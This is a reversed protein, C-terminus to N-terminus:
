LNRSPARDPGNSTKTPLVITPTDVAELRDDDVWMTKVEGDQNARPVLLSQSCGTLYQCKVIVVGQFGTIVDKATNGLQTEM